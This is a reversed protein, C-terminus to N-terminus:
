YFGNCQSSNIAKKVEIIRNDCHSILSTMWTSPDGANMTRELLDNSLHM